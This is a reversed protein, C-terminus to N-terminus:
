SRDHTYRWSNDRGSTFPKFSVRKNLSVVKPTADHAGADDQHGCWTLAVDLKGERTAEWGLLDLRHARYRVLLTGSAGLTQVDILSLTLDHAERLFPTGQGFLRPELTLWLGDM